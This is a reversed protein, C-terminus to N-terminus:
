FRWLVAKAMIDAQQVMIKKKLDCYLPSVPGAKVRDQYEKVTTAFVDNLKAMDATGKSEAYLNFWQVQNGLAVLQAKQDGACDFNAASQRIDIVAKAQNDDWKSPILNGLSSCGSLGIICIAIALLKKM